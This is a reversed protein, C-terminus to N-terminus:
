NISSVLVVDHSLKYILDMYEKTNGNEALQLVEKVNSLTEVQFRLQKSKKISEERCSTATKLISTSISKKCSLISM